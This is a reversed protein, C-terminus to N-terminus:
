SKIRNSSMRNMAYAMYEAITDRTIYTQVFVKARKMIAKCEPDNSQCWRIQEELNSLDSKIPVYHKWPKLVKDVWTRDPYEINNPDVMLMLSGSSLIWTTRNPRTHGDVNLIYKYKIQENMPLKKQISVGVAEWQKPIIYHVFGDSDIKDSLNWSTIGANLLDQMSSDKSWDHSTKALHLRQNNKLQGTAAGRFFATETKDAWDVDNIIPYYADPNVALIWDQVIPIVIDLYLDNSYSTVIPAYSTAPHKIMPVTGKYLFGYPKRLDKRLIPHDRKNLVFQINAVEHQRLAELIMEYYELLSHEGWVDPRPEVNLFHHNAWWHTPNMMMRRSYGLVKKKNTLYDKVPHKSNAAVGYFSLEKSWDNRYRANAFPIFAELKNNRISIFIGARTEWYVYKITNIISSSDIDQYLPHKLKNNIDFYLHKRSRDDISSDNGGRRNAIYKQIIDTQISQWTTLLQFKMAISDRIQRPNKM